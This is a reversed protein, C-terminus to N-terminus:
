LRLFSLDQQYELTKTRFQDRNNWIYSTVHERESKLRAAQWARELAAFSFVETDFGEPYSQGTNILDLSGRDLFYKIVSDTVDPDLLPCDSTVRVITGLHFVKAAQYYRDLVDNESGRFVAIGCKDVYEAIVCDQPSDTTAVIVQKVNQCQKLRELLYFLLPKGLIQKMVKGPLRTSGMRAQIIVSAKEGNM